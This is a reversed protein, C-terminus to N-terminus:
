TIVPSRFIFFCTTQSSLFLPWTKNDICCSGFCKYSVNGANLCVLIILFIQEEKSIGMRNLIQSKCTLSLHFNLRHWELMISCTWLLTTSAFSKGHLLSPPWLQQRSSRLTMLLGENMQFINNLYKGENQLSELKSLDAILKSKEEKQYFKFHKGASSNYKNLLNMNKWLLFITM